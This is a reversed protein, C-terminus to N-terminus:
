IGLLTKGKKALDEFNWRHLVELIADQVEGWVPAAPCINERECEGEGAVCININMPGDIAELVDKLTIDKPNKALSFGGKVGRFSNVIRAKTLSQFIKAMFSQPVDQERCIDSLLCMKGEPQMAMYLVGRVGYDVARTIKV